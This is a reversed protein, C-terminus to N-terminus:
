PHFTTQKIILYYIIIMITINEKTIKKIEEFSNGKNSIFLNYMSKNRQHPLYNKQELDM